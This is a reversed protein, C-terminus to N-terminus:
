ISLNTQNSRSRATECYDPLIPECQWGRRQNVSKSGTILLVHSPVVDERDLGRIDVDIMKLVSM